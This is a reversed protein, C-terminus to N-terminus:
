SFSKSLDELVRISQEIKGPESILAITVDRIKPEDTKPNLKAYYMQDDNWLLDFGREILVAAQNTILYRAHPMEQYRRTERKVKLAFQFSTFEREVVNAFEMLKDYLYKIEDRTLDSPEVGTYIEFKRELRSHYQNFLELLWMLNRKYHEVISPEIKGQKNIMSRGIYRDIIKISKATEFLPILIRKEMKGKDIQGDSFVYNDKRNMFHKSLLYDEISILRSRPSIVSELCCGEGTFMSLESTQAMASRHFECLSGEIVSSNCFDQRIIRGKSKLSQYYERASRQYKPPLSQVTNTLSEELKGQSDVFVLCNKNLERLLGIFFVYTQDGLKFASPSFTTKYLM